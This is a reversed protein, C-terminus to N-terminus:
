TGALGVIVGTAIVALIFVSILALAREGSRLYGVLSAAVRASPTGLLILLGLWLFGIPRLNAIDAVLRGPDVSPGGDFPSVGMAAMGVVGIATFLVGAYTGYTLLRGIRIELPRVSRSRSTM